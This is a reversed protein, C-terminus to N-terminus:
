PQGAVRVPVSVSDGGPGDGRQGYEDAGWCYALADEAIGCAHRVGVTVMRFRLGTPLQVPSWGSLLLGGWCYAEGAATVACAGDGGADIAAFAAATRVRTPVVRRTFSSDGVQGLANDGWCYATGDDVLGCSMVDGASVTVFRLGGAVPTPSSRDTTDGVGLQGRENAGWCHATSDAGLACAHERGAYVRTFRVPSPVPTPTLRYGGRSGLGLQGRDNEGWCYVEGAATTGCAFGWGDAITTFSPADQVLVPMWYRDWCYAAGAATLGCQGSVVAFARGGYVGIPADGDGQGGSGVPERGWCFAQGAISLGCTSFPGAALAGFTVLVTRVVATGTVGRVQVRVMSSGASRGAVRARLVTSEPQIAAVVTDAISWQATTTPVLNGISDFVQAVVAVTASPVLTMDDPWVTVRAAAGTVAIDTGGVATVGLSSVHAALRVNGRRRAAVGGPVVSVITTDSSVLRVEDPIVQCGAGDTAGVLVDATDGPAMTSPANVQVRAPEYSCGGVGGLDAVTCGIGLICVVTTGIGVRTM